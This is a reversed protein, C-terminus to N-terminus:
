LKLVAYHQGGALPELGPVHFHHPDIELHKTAETTHWQPEGARQEIMTARVGQHIAPDIEHLRAALFNLRHPDAAEADAVLEYAHMAQRGEGDTM